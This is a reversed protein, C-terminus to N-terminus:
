ELDPGFLEEARAGAMGTRDRLVAADRQDRARDKMGAELCYCALQLRPDPSYRLAKDGLRVVDEPKAETWPVTRLTGQVSKLVIGSAAADVIKEGPKAFSAKVSYADVEEGRIAEGLTDAFGILCNLREGRRKWAEVEAEPPEMDQFAGLAADFRMDKISDAIRKQSEERAQRERDVSAKRQEERLRREEDSMARDRWFKEEEAARRGVDMEAFEKAVAAYKEAADKPHDLGKSTAFERATAFAKEAADRRAERAGARDKMGFDAPPKEPAAPDESVPGPPKAPALGSPKEPAKPPPADGGANLVLAVVVAVAVLAGLFLAPGPGSRRAVPVRFRVKRRRGRGAEQLLTELGELESALDRAAFRYGRAPAMSRKVLVDLEKPIDWETSVQSPARLRGSEHAKLIEKVSQGGFPPEGTLMHFLTAGLSYTDSKEDQRRGQFVEPAVYHATGKRDAAEGVLEANGFDVLVAGGEDDVIVNGPKVDRHLIKQSHAHDLALALQRAIGVAEEPDLPGEDEIKQRLNLGEVFDMIILLYGQDEIVDFVRVVHPHHLKALARAEEVFRARAEASAAADARLIKVAVDKKLPQYLAHFVTATAGRGVPKGIVCRGLTKGSFPSSRPVAPPAPSM